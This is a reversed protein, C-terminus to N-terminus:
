RAVDREYIDNTRVVRMGASEYLRNAGTLSEADVGLGARAFGRRRLEAFAHLLLARGVGRRRWPRRVGLTQVWGVEPETEHPFCLAYGAVEDAETAVFWLDPDRDERRVLWHAWEEFPEPVHEWHDAFCEEHVEYLMREECPRATRVEIGVPWVPEPPPPDLEILMRYTHRILRYGRHEVARKMREAKGPLFSRLRADPGAREELWDLLQDALADPAKPALRADAWFTERGEKEERYVDAYGVLGGDETEAVRIDREPEVSPSELYMRYSIPSYDDSGYAARVAANLVELIAAEDSPRPPRLRM